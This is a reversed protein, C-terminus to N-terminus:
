EKKVLNLVIVFRGKKVTRFNGKQAAPVSFDSRTAIRFSGKRFEDKMARM